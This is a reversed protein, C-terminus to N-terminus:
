RRAGAGSVWEGNGMGWERNGIGGREGIKRAHGRWFMFQQSGLELGGPVVLARGHVVGDVLEIRRYLSWLLYIM